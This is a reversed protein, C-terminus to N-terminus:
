ARGTLKLIEQYVAVKAEAQKAREIAAEAIYEAESKLMVATCGCQWNIWELFIRNGLLRCLEGIKDAPFNAGKDEIIKSFTGPDIDLPLYVEKRELGAARLALDLAQGQTKCARVHEVPV